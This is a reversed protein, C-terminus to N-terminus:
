AASTFRYDDRVLAQAAAADLPRGFFYGQGHNCSLSQLLAVQEPKEIGEAVVDMDLNHALQVITQIIARFKRADGSRAIFSRDIKLIDMPVQHLFSLSSHGTGFDDMALRVGVERLRDLVPVAERASDMIMSETVELVLASPEIGSEGIVGAVSAVLDPHTLQQRSLNVSMSLLGPGTRMEQWLRLQRAAERMVWHGIPIILGLEEALPIFQAPSVVGRQPHPWRILAEFGRLAATELSVIPQYNLTFALQDAAKRLEKELTLREVAHSHMHGNFVVHRAKGSKKAEYMAIDSDRLIDEPKEYNGDVIVIGISATSIVEHDAIVYPQALTQQIRETVILADRAGHVGDLLIVFEDGGLRAPLHEYDPRSMTDLARLNARIRDAIGVLLQDGVEHGLSDNIVKFRDFDLLLVAFKYERFRKSRTIAQTLRDMLLLRSPLGTLADHHAAHRLKTESRKRGSVDTFTAILGDEHKVMSIQFWLEQGDKSCSREDRFPVRTEVVSVAELLLRQSKICPVHDLVRKGLIASARCGLLNEAEDNIFRCEFDIIKGHEDRVAEAIMVGSVSSRVVASLVQRDTARDSATRALEETLSRIRGRTSTTAVRWLLGYAVLLAGGLSCVTEAIFRRPYPRNLLPASLLPYGPRAVSLYGGLLLLVVGAIISLSRASKRKAGLVELLVGLGAFIAVCYITQILWTSM